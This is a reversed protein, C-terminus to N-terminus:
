PRLQGDNKMSQLLDFTCQVTRLPRIGREPKGAVATVAPGALPVEFM